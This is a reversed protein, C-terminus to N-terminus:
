RAYLNSGRFRIIGQRPHSYSVYRRRCRRHRGTSSPAGVGNCMEHARGFHMCHPGSLAYQLRMTEDAMQVTREVEADQQAMARGRYTERVRDVNAPLWEPAVGGAM